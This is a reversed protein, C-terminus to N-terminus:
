ARLIEVLTPVDASIPGFGLAGNRHPVRGTLLASRSPQCISATVHANVFRHASAALADLRPTARLPNGMWGASDGNLDDATVLLLNPRPFAAPPSGVTVVAVLLATRQWSSSRREARGHRMARGELERRGPSPLTASLSCSRHRRCTRRQSC